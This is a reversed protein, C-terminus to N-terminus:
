ILARNVYCRSLLLSLAKQDNLNHLAIFSREGVLKSKLVCLFTMLHLICSSHVSKLPLLVFYDRSLSEFAIKHTNPHAIV